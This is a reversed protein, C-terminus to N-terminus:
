AGEMRWIVAAMRGCRGDRRYSFFAAQEAHTCRMCADIRDVGLAQLEMRAIGQLDAQWRDDRGPRFAAGLAPKGAIFAERVEPGVEFSEAGICPGLWAQLEVGPRRTRLRAVAAHLVGAQLGRWGAHVAAILGGAREAILVPLCDAVMVACVVGARDTWSADAVAPGDDATVVRCGHVQELWCPESPLNLARRLRRRNEEVAADEDGVHTALNLSAYPGSSVGGARLSFAARVGPIAPWSPEIWETM